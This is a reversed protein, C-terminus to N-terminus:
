CYQNYKYMGRLITNDSIGTYATEEVPLVIPPAEGRRKLQEKLIELLDVHGLHVDEGAETSKQLGIMFLEEHKPGKRVIMDLLKEAQAQDTLQAENIRLQQYEDLTLLNVSLLHPKLNAVNLYQILEARYTHLISTMIDDTCYIMQFMLIHM